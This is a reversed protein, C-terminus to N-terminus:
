GHVVNSAFRVYNSPLFYWSYVSKTIKYTIQDKNRKNGKGKFFFYYFEKINQLVCNRFM